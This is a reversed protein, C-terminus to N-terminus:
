CRLLPLRTLVTVRLAFNTVRLYVSDIFLNTGTNTIAKLKAESSNIGAGVGASPQVSQDRCIAENKDVIWREHVEHHGIGRRTRTSFHQLQAADRRAVAGFADHVVAPMLATAAVSVVTGDPLNIEAM